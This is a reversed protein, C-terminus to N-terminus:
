AARRGRSASLQREAQRGDERRASPSRMVHQFMIICLNACLHPSIINVTVCLESWRLECCGHTIHLKNVYFFKSILAKFLSKILMVPGTNLMISILSSFPRSCPPNPESKANQKDNKKDLGRESEPLVSSTFFFWIHEFCFFLKIKMHKQSGDGSVVGVQKKITVM